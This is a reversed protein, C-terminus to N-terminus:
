KARLDIDKFCNSCSAWSSGRNPGVPRGKDLEEVIDVGDDGLIVMDGFDEGMIGSVTADDWATAAAWAAKFPIVDAEFAEEVVLEGTEFADELIIDADM